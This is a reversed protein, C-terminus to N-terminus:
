GHNMDIYWLVRKKRLMSFLMLPTVKYSFRPLGHGSSRRNLGKCLGYVGVNETDEIILLKAGVVWLTHEGCKERICVEFSGQVEAWEIEEPM